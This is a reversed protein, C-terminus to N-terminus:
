LLEEKAHLPKYKKKLFIIIIIINDPVALLFPRYCIVEINSELVKAPWFVRCAKRM